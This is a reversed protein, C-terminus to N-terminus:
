TPSAEIPRPEEGAAEVLRWRGDHDKAVKGAAALTRLMEGTRSRSANAANALAAVRLGPMERMATLLRQEATKASPKGRRVKGAYPAPSRAAGPPGNPGGAKGNAKAKRADPAANAAVDRDITDIPATPPPHPDRGNPKPSGVPVAGPLKLDAAPALWRAVEARVADPWAMVQDLATRLAALEDRTM